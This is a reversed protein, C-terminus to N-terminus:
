QRGQLGPDPQVMGFKELNKGPLDWDPALKIAKRYAEIAEEKRGFGDNLINGLTNYYYPYGPNVAIGREIYELARDYEGLMVYRIAISNYAKYIRPDLEVAREMYGIAERPMNLYTLAIGVNLYPGGEQPSMAIAKKYSSLAGRYDGAMTLASGIEAHARGAIYSSPNKTLVDSWFSIPSRWVRNRQITLVASAGLILSLTVILAIKGGRATIERGCLTAVWSVGCGAALCLGGIPLYTRHENYMINLPLVTVPLIAVFFWVIGFTFLSNRKILLLSIVIIALIAILSILFLPEGMNKVVQINKDISLNSPFIFMKLYIADVKVQTLFNALLSRQGGAGGILAAKSVAIVAKGLVIKRVILYLIGTCALIALYCKPLSKM